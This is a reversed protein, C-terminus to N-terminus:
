SRDREDRHRQLSTDGEQEQRRRAQERDSLYQSLDIKDATEAARERATEAAERKQEPTLVPTFLSEFVNAISDLTNGVAREAGRALAAPAIRTGAGRTPAARNIRQANELRVAEWYAARDAGRVNLMEKTADIGALKGRVPELFQDIRDLDDGTTRENLRYIRRAEVPAGERRFIPGPETVAIIENERYRPAYNGIAKAFEAERHSRDAEAKTVIAVAIGHDALAMVFAHPSNSAHYDTWIHREIFSLEKPPAEPGERNLTGVGSLDRFAQRELELHQDPEVFRREVKEKEIAAKALADQWAMEDRHPDRMREPATKERDIGQERIFARAQEVTPLDDRDLDGLRDRTQRATIGLIRKGLAHIGGEHDIVVFARRDGQALVVGRDALAAEFSRGNDSQEFCNRITQRVDNIDVGLRRAQELENRTPAQV